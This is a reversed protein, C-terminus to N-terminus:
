KPKVAGVHGDLYLVYDIGNHRGPKPLSTFRDTANKALDTSDYILPTNAANSLQKLSTKQGLSQGAIEENYAYGYRDDHGNSVAPCHFDANHPVKSVIEQNDMWGAAPPLADWDQAYLNFANWLARLHDPCSEASQKDTAESPPAIEQWIHVLQQLRQLFASRIGATFVLVLVVSVLANGVKRREGKARQFALGCLAGLVVGGGIGLGLVLAQHTIIPGHQAALPRTGLWLALVVALGFLASNRLTRQMDRSQYGVAFGVAAAVVVGITILLGIIGLIQGVQM